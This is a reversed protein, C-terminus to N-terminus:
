NKFTLEKLSGLHDTGLYPFKREIRTEKNVPIEYKLLCKFKKNLIQGSIRYGTEHIDPKQFQRIDPWILIRYM